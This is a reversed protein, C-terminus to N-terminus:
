TEEADLMKKKVRGAGREEKSCKRVTGDAMINNGGGGEGGGEGGGGGWGGESARLKGVGGTATHVM